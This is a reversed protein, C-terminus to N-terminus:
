YELAISFMGECHQFCYVKKDFFFSTIGMQTWDIGSALLEACTVIRPLLISDPCDAPLSLTFFFRADFTLAYRSFEMATAVSFDTRILFTLVLLLFALKLISGRRYSSAYNFNIYHVFTM